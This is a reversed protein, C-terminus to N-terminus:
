KILTISGGHKVIQDTGKLQAQLTYAYVGAPVLEGNLRGDWRPSTASGKFIIGGWRDYIEITQIEFIDPLGFGENLNDANPTFGTPIINKIPQVVTITATDYGKCGKYDTVQLGVKTTINFIVRPRPQTNLGNFTSLPTWLYQYKKVPTIDAYLEHSMGLMTLRNITIKPVIQEPENVTGTISDSCGYVDKVIVKYNGKKLGISKSTTQIPSTNWNWNYAGTGGKTSTAIAGDSYGYCFASDINTISIVVKAPENITGTISDSCGYIDKAILKYVGKKLNSAKSTIQKSPDNWQYKFGNSGGAISTTISGDSGQFCNVSDIATITLVVKAPENVTGTISDSCGYIDKAILKYVGKKLNSAKSSLQKTPDNWQYKFGKSGGAISTTISGDTGQYCNVSDIATIALTVKAPENVIASITDICKATDTVTVKYIGKKLNKAQSTNQSTADDWKYSYPSIGGTVSAIVSGDAGQFCNVSDISTITVKPNSVTVTTTDTCTGIGDSVSVWVKNKGVVSYKITSATDGTSWKTSTLNTQYLNSIENLTLARSWIALDDIIGTFYNTIGPSVPHSAGIYNTSTSNGTALYSFDLVSYSIKQKTILKNNVFLKLNSSDYTVVIHFWKNATITNSPSSIGLYGQPSPDSGGFYVVGASTIYLYKTRWYGEKCSITMDSNLTSPNVWVSYTFASVKSSGGFFPDKLSIYDNGDFSYASKSNGFRDNVLTAGNVTGDNSTSSRDKANGCFPWWGSLGTSLSSPLSPCETILTPSNCSLTVSGGSCVVSDRPKITSNMISVVITDYVICNGSDTVKITYTGSKKISIKNSKSGTSWEYSKLGTPATVIVSDSNCNKLDSGLFASGVKCSISTQLYIGDSTSILLTDNQIYLDSVDGSLCSDKRIWSKGKDISKWVGQKNYGFWLDGKSNVVLSNLYGSAAAKISVSSYLTWTTGSNKSEYINGDNAFVLIQSGFSRILITKSSFAQGTIQSWTNGNDKSWYISMSSNSAFTINSSKVYHINTFDMGSLKNTWSTGNNSSIHIGRCSGGVGIYLVGTTDQEFSLAGCGYGSGFNYSWSTGNNTSKYVGNHGTPVYLDGNSAKKFFMHLGSPFTASNTSWKTLNNSEYLYNVVGGTNPNTASCYVKGNSAKAFKLYYDSVSSVKKWCTQANLKGLFSVCLLGIFVIKFKNYHNGSGFIYKVMM